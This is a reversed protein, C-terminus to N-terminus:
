EVDVVVAERASRYCAELVKSSHLGEAASNSPQRDEAIAAGFEEIEARYTNVPEPAIVIGGAANRGQEASYTKDAEELYAVMEGGAGQGITGEALISGRSGYIELRNKSSADPVCFFADISGQAGGAFELLVTAGDESEYDHVINAIRCSVRKAPGFYMELLDISHAGMDILSGGGGLAPDQRWAGEIPPYWCSLQARGFVLRGLRDQRIMELAQQHCAHFRMMFGVGLKVGARDSASIMEECQQPTMGMPKECLVHKGAKAAAVAQELHLSAPSAIYVADVDAALLADLSDVPVAGFERAVEENVQANVDFVATLAANKAPVIVKPSPGDVPSGM